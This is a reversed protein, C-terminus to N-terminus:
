NQNPPSGTIVGMALQIDPAVPVPSLRRAQILKICSRRSMSHTRGGASNFMFLTAAPNSWVLQARLWEGQSQLDVWIGPRLEALVAQVSADDLESGPPLQPSERSRLAGLEAFDTFRAEEVGVSELEGRGLWPGDPRYGTGDEAPTDREIMPETPPGADTATEVPGSPISSAVAEDQRPVMLPQHWEMLADFFPRTEDDTKGIAALGQRLNGILEPLATRVSEAEHELVSPQTSWLLSAVVRQCVQPDLGEPSPSLRASALVTAWWGCLFSVVFGPAEAMEPLQSLELTIRDALAQREDALRIAQLRQAQQAQWAEDSARWATSLQDLARSFEGTGARPLANLSQFAQLVPQFFSNFTPNAIDNHEVARHLVADLLRRAPHTPQTIFRPQELALRLLAPELGVIAEGVPRLLLPDGALRGVLGRVVDLAVVQEFSESGAKLTLLHIARTAPNSWPGWLDRDLHSSVGPAGSAEPGQGVETRDANALKEIQAQVLDHFHVPLSSKLRGNAPTLFAKLWQPELEHFPLCLSELPPLDEAGAAQQLDTLPLAAAGTGAGALRRYLSLLEDVLAPALHKMRRQLTALDASAEDMLIWALALWHRPSALREFRVMVEPTERALVSELCASHARVLGADEALESSELPVPASVMAGGTEIELLPQTDHTALIVHRSQPPWPLERGRVVEDLGHLFATCLDARRRLLDGWVAATRDFVVVERRSGSRAQLGAIARDLSRGFVVPVQARLQEFSDVLGVRSRGPTAHGCPGAHLKERSYCRLRPYAQVPCRRGVM